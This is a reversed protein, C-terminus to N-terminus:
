ILSSFFTEMFPDRTHQTNIHANNNQGPLVNVKSKDAVLAIAANTDTQAKNITNEEMKKIATGAKEEAEEEKDLKRMETQTPIINENAGSKAKVFNIKDAEKIISKMGLINRNLLYELIIFTLGIIVFWVFISWSFDGIITFSTNLSSKSFYNLLKDYISKIFSMRLVLHFLPLVITNLLKEIVEKTAMGICFGTAAVLVNNSYM